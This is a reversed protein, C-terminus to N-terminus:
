MEKCASVTALIFMSLDGILAYEVAMAAQNIQKTDCWNPNLIIQHLFYHMVVDNRAVNNGTM